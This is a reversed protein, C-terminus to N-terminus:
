QGTRDPAQDPYHDAHYGRQLQCRNDVTDFRQDPMFEKGAVDIKNVEQRRFQVPQIDNIHQHCCQQQTQQGAPIGGAAGTTNVRRPHQTALLKDDHGTLRRM